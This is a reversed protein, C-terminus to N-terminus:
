DILEFPSSSTWDFPMLAFSQYFNSIVPWHENSPTLTRSQSYWLVPHEGQLPEGSMFEDLTQACTSANSSNAVAYKECANYRTIALDFQAWNHESSRYDFGANSPDLYYGASSSDVVRWGRFNERDVKAYAENTFRSVQMPRRNGQDPRLSFDFQEVSDGGPKDLDFVLRWTTLITARTIHEFLSPVAEAFRQDINFQSPRGSLSVAPRIQGDETFTVSVAWTLLGRGLASSLEWNEGHLSPRHGYKALNPANEMRSCVLATSDREILRQGDCNESTMPLLRYDARETEGLQAIARTQDHYHMLIQGLHAHLLVSRSSDGPARYKVHSIDLGHAPNVDACVTWQAGSNFSHELLNGQACEGDDALVNALFNPIMSLLLWSALIKLSLQKM